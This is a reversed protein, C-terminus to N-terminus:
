EYNWTLIGGFWKLLKDYGDKTNEPVVVPPEASCYFARSIMNHQMLKKYWNYNMSFFLFCDVSEMDQYCDITHFEIGKKRFAEAFLVHTGKYGDDRPIYISDNKISDDWPIVAIRKM